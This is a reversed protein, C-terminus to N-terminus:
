RLWHTPTMFSFVVLQALVLIFSIWRIVGKTDDAAFYSAFLITFIVWTSSFLRRIFLRSQLKNNAETVQPLM